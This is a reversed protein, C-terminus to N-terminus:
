AHQAQEAATEFDFAGIFNYVIEIERTKATRDVASIYIKDIFERLMTADLEQLDTYKKAAAIFSKVNIRSREREKLERRTTEIVAKQEDQEREYDRSLKIFREDTLKGSINDEYLRKIILDLETVRKEAKTLADKKAALERDQARTSIDSAERIFDAEHRSVYAIAERLNRLVIEELVVNRITHPSDCGRKNRYKSCAFYEQRKEFNKTRCHYMIGKCDACYLLGSFMDTEGMKTPRRKSQRLNQVILFVSEEIIPEHTNEFVAWNEPDNLLIKKSKYSQKTTRFNLTHGLYDIRELMRSVTEDSWRYLDKTPDHSVPLGKERMHASPKLIRNNELWKAIQSPGKGDVCLSFIKQVVAAAEADVIWRKKNEPDKMYGYPPM